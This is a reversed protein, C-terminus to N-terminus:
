HVVHMMFSSESNKEGNLTRERLETEWVGINIWDCVCCQTGYVFLGPHTVAPPFLLQSNLLFSQYPMTLWRMFIFFNLICMLICPTGELGLKKHVLQSVEFFVNEELGRNWETYFLLTVRIYIYIYRLNRGIYLNLAFQAKFRCLESVGWLSTFADVWPGGFSTKFNAKNFYLKCLICEVWKWHAKWYGKAFICITIYGHGCDLYFVLLGWLGTDRCHIGAEPLWQDSEHWHLKTNELINYLYFWETHLRAKRM